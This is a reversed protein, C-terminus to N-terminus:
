FTIGILRLAGVLVSAMVFCLLSLPKVVARWYACDRSCRARM